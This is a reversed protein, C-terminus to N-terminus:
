RPAGRGTTGACCTPTPPSPSSTEPAASGGRGATRDPWAGHGRHHLGRRRPPPGGAPPGPRGAGDAEMAFRDLTSLGPAYQYFHEYGGELLPTAGMQWFLWSLTEASPAEPLSSGFREALYLLIAGSEFVRHATQPTTWSRLSRPTPNPEVLGIRVAGWGHHQHAADYEAGAHGLACGELLITVKMGNPHGTLLAPPHAGVPLARDHTPGAEPRNIDSFRHVQGTGPGSMRRGYDAM